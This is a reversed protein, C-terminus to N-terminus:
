PQRGQLLSVFLSDALCFVCNIAAPCNPDSVSAGSRQRSRKLLVTPIEGTMPQLAGERDSQLITAWIHKCAGQDAFYPCGCAVVLDGYLFQLCVEYINGGHVEAHVHNTEVTTLRVAGSEFLKTGRFQVGRDVQFALKSALSM